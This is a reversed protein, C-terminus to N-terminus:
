RTSRVLDAMSLGFLASRIAFDLIGTTEHMCSIIKLIMCCEVTGSHEGVEISSFGLTAIVVTPMTRVSEVMSLENFTKCAGFEKPM